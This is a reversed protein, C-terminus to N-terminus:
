WGGGGGADRSGWGGNDGGNSPSSSHDGGADRSGWGGNDGGNSPSSNHDGSPGGGADRSGWGTTEYSAKERAEAQANKYAEQGGMSVGLHYIGGIMAGLFGGGMANSIDKALQADAAQKSFGPTSYAIDHRVCSNTLDHGLVKDPVLHDTKANGCGDGLPRGDNRVGNTVGSDTGTINGLLSMFGGSNSASSNSGSSSSSFSPASSITSSVQPAPSAFSSTFGSPSGAGFVIAAMEKSCIKM